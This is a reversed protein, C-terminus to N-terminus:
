TSVARIEALEIAAILQDLDAEFLTEPIGAGVWVSGFRELSADVVTRLPHSHGLPPVGGVEFGTLELVEHPTAQRVDSGLATMAVRRDGPCLCLLPADDAILVLSKVVRGLECGLARAAEAASRAPADLNRARVAVGREEFLLRLEDVNLHQAM